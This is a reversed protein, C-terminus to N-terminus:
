LRKYGYWPTIMVIDFIDIRGDCNVDYNTNYLPDGKESGYASAILVIDFIDVDKDVDFDGPHAVEVGEYILSNDSTDNEGFVHDATANLLYDEYEIADTVQWAFTVTLIDSKDLYVQTRNIDVYNVYFTVNFTEPVNGQNELTVNVHFCYGKFVVTKLPTLLTVAVDHIPEIALTITGDEFRNNEIGTEGQVITANASITYDGPSIGSTNWFFILTKETNPPLVFVAETYIEVSDYYTTVNFIEDRVTGNNLVVVTINVMDGIFVSTSSPTVSLIAIDYFVNSFYGDESTHSIQQGNSDSLDSSSIDISCEGFDIVTFTMEFVTGSGNFSPGALTVFAVWCTGATANVENKVQMIPEHLIGDTYSEVPIKVVHSTYNLISANWSLQIDLGILDTVNSIKVAITFNKSPSLTIDTINSPDVYVVTQSTLAFQGHVAPKISFGFTFLNILILGLILLIKIVSRM